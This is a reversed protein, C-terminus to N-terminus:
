LVFAMGICKVCSCTELFISKLIKCNWTPPSQHSWRCPLVNEPVTKASNRVQTWWCSMYINTSILLQTEWIVIIIVYYDMIIVVIVVLFWYADDGHPLAIGAPGKLSVNGRYVHFKARPLPGKTWEGMGFKVNIPASIHYYLGWFQWIKLNQYYIQREPTV